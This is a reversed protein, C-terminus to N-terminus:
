NLLLWRFKSYNNVFIINFYPFKLSKINTDHVLNLLLLYLYNLNKSYCNKTINSNLFDVPQLIIDLLFM